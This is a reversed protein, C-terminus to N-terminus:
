DELHVRGGDGDQKWDFLYSVSTHRLSNALTHSHAKSSYYSWYENIISWVEQNVWCCHTVTLQTSQKYNNPSGFASCYLHFNVYPSKSSSFFFCFAFGPSMLFLQVLLPDSPFLSFCWPVCLSHPAVQCLVLPSQSLLYFLYHTQPFCTLFVTPVFWPHHSVSLLAWYSFCTVGAFCSTIFHLKHMLEILFIQTRRSERTNPQLKIRWTVEM